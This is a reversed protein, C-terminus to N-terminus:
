SVLRDPRAHGSRHHGSKSTKSPPSRWNLAILLAAIGAPPVIWMWFEGVAEVIVALVVLFVVTMVVSILTALVKYWLPPPPEGPKPPSVVHIWIFAAYALTMAAAPWGLAFTHRHLSDFVTLAGFGVFLVLSVHHLFWESLTAPPQHPLVQQSMVPAADPVAIIPAPATQNLKPPDRGFWFIIVAMILIALITAFWERILYGVLFVALVAGVLSQGLMILTAGTKAAISWDRAQQPTDAAFPLGWIWIVATWVGLAPFAVWWFDGMLGLVFPITAFFGVALFIVFYLNNLPWIKM